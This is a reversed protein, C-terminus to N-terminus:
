LKQLRTSCLSAHLAWSSIRRRVLSIAMRLTLPAVALLMTRSIARSRCHIVNAASTAPNAPAYKIPPLQNSRNAVFVGNFMPSNAPHPKVTQAIMATVTTKGHTGSICLANRYGHMIAGWAQAREFVPIGRAVAGSIEPNDDHIAATRVVFDADGLNDAAHGIAVPIGLARLHEVAPSDNMDSGQVSLGMSHLVEALPSMSVGGIGALHVRKGPVLYSNIDM